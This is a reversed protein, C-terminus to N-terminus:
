RELDLIRKPKAVRDHGNKALVDVTSHVTHPGSEVDIAKSTEQASVMDDVEYVLMESAARDKKEAHM